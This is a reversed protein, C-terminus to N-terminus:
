REEKIRQQHEEEERREEARDCDYCRGSAIWTSWHGCDCCETFDDPTIPWLGVSARWVSSEACYEATPRPQRQKGESM